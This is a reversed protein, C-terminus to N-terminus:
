IIKQLQGLDTLAFELGSRVFLFYNEPFIVLYSPQASGIYYFVDRSYFLLAGSLARKKINEQLIKIRGEYGM